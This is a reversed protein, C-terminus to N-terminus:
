GRKIGSVTTKTLKKLIDQPIVSLRVSARRLVSQRLVPNEKKTSPAYKQRLGGEQSDASTEDSPVLQQRSIMGAYIGGPLHMLDSHSGQEVVKGGCVVAIDDAAVITSLRHAVVITTRDLMLASLAEQVARESQADLASTAEDLLLVKPNRLIARAIAIRQRQGGSLQGGKDGVTTNYGQPLKSIFGHANAATAAAIVEEQSADPRSNAINEYITTNFLTPEQNVLAVQL